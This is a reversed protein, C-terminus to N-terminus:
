DAPETTYPIPFRNSVAMSSLHGGAESYAYSQWAEAIVDACARVQSATSPHSAPRGYVIVEVQGKILFGGDFGTHPADVIRMVAWLGTLNDPARDLFLKGDKGSGTSTTGLRTALTAGGGDPTFTLLRTRILRLVGSWSATNAM